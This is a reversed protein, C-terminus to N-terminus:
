LLMTGPRPSVSTVRQTPTGDSRRELPLHGARLLNGPDRPEATEASILEEALHIFIVNLVLEVKSPQVLLHRVVPLREVHDEVQLRVILQLVVGVLRVQDLLCSLHEIPQDVCSVNQCVPADGLHNLLVLSAVKAVAGPHVALVLWHHRNPQRIDRSLGHDLKVAWLAHVDVGGLGGSVVVRIAGVKASAEWVHEEHHMRLVPWLSRGVLKDRAEISEFDVGEGVLDLLLCGGVELSMLSLRPPALLLDLPMIDAGSFFLRSFKWWAVTSLLVGGCHVGGSM